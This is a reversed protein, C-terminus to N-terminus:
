ETVLEPAEEVCRQRAHSCCTRFRCGSSPAIPNPVDGQLLARDNALRPYPRLIAMLPAHTYPHRPDAFLERKDAHEVIQGLYMVAVRDAIHKVVVASIANCTNRCCAPRSCCNTRGTAHGGM